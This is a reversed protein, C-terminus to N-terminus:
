WYGDDIDIFENKIRSNEYGLEAGIKSYIFKYNFNYVLDFTFINRKIISRNTISVNNVFYDYINASEELKIGERDFLNLYSLSTSFSGWNYTLTYQNQKIDQYYYIVQPSAFNPYNTNLLPFLNSNWIRLYYLNLSDSQITKMGSNVGGLSSWTFSLGKYGLTFLVNDSQYHPFKLLGVKNFGYYIEYNTENENFYFKWIEAFGRNYGWIYSRGFDFKVWVQSNANTFIVIIAM